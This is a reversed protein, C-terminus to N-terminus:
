EKRSEYEDKPLKDLDKLTIEYGFRQLRAETGDNYLITQGTDPCVKKWTPMDRIMQQKMKLMGDKHAAALENVNFMCIGLYAQETMRTNTSALVQRLAYQKSTELINKNVPEEKMSKIFNKISELAFTYADHLENVLFPEQQLRMDIEALIRDKETM